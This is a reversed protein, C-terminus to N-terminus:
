LSVNRALASCIILTWLISTESPTDMKMFFTFILIHVGERCFLSPQINFFSAGPKPRDRRRRSRKFAGRPRLPRRM